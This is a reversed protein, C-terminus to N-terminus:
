GGFLLSRVALAVVAFELTLTIFVVLGVAKYTGESYKTM